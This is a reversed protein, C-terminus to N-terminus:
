ATIAPFVDFPHTFTTGDRTVVPIGGVVVRVDYKFERRAEGKDLLVVDFDQPGLTVTFLGTSDIVIGGGSTAYQKVINGGERDRVDLAVSDLTVLTGATDKITFQYKRQRGQQYQIRKEAM